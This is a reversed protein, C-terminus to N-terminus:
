GKMRKKLLLSAFVFAVATYGIVVLWSVLTGSMDGAMAAKCIDLAHAYPLCYCVKELTGGIMKLDFWMGSSLAAVQVLISTVFSVQKDGFAVGMLIGLGIFLATIPIMALWCWLVGITLDLGLLLSVSLTLAAQAMAVPVLPIGYGVIYDSRKLPSAFLRTLFSTARDKSVLAATFLTIFSFAFIATAPAFSNMAFNAPVAAQAGIAANIIKVIGLMLLPMGIGFCLTLPDRIIEKQNRSAFALTRM